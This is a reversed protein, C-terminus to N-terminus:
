VGAEKSVFMKKVGLAILRTLRATGVTAWHCGFFVFISLGALVLSAFILFLGSLLEGFCIWVVGVAVCGAACGVSASFIAWASGVLSWLVAYLSILVAFAALGLTLWIPSGVALLVIEWARLRRKPKIKKKVIKTLPVESLTQSVIEDVSGISAVAEEESKGEEVQDDIMESYFNLREEV